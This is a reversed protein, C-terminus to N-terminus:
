LEAPRQCSVVNDRFLVVDGHVAGTTATRVSETPCRFFVATCVYTALRLPTPSNCENDRHSRLDHITETAACTVVACTAAVSVPALGNPVHLIEAFVLLHQQGLLSMTVPLFCGRQSSRQDDGYSCIRDAGFVCGCVRINSTGFRPHLCM